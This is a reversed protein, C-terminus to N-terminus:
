DPTGCGNNSGALLQGADIGRAKARVEIEPDSADMQGVNYEVTSDMEVNEFLRDM